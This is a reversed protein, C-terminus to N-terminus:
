PTFLAYYTTIKVTGDGVTVAASEDLRLPNGTLKTLAEPDALLAGDLNVLSACTATQAIPFGNVQSGWGAASYTTASVFVRASGAEVYTAAGYTLRCAMDFPVIIQGAVAPVLTVPTTGLALIQASTLSVTSAFMAPRNNTDTFDIQGAIRTEANADTILAPYPTTL